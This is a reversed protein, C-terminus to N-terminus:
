SNRISRLRRRLIKMYYQWCTHLQLMCGVDHGTAQMRYLVFRYAHLFGRASWTLAMNRLLADASRGTDLANLEEDSLSNLADLLFQNVEYVHYRYRRWTAQGPHVRSKALEGPVHEYPYTRSLLFFLEVDSTHPRKVNFMGCTEFASRPILITNGNFAQHLLLYLSPHMTKAVSAQVNGMRNGSEDILEYDSYLIAERFGIKRLANIQLELKEPIYLDDHSLWAFYDGHMNQIGHNLASAQGGNSKSFYRIRDGYQLAIAETGDTSGDNVVLIEFNTYTQALASDIAARLYNEGNYVPIVISVLPNESSMAKRGGCAFELGNM